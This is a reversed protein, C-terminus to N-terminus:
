VYPNAFFMTVILKRFVHHSNAEEQGIKSPLSNQNGLDMDEMMQHATDEEFDAQVSNTSMRHSSAASHSDKSLDIIMNRLTNCEIELVDIKQKDIKQKQQVLNNMIIANQSTCQHENEHVKFTV